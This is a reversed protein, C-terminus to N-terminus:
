KDKLKPEMTTVPAKPPVAEEVPAEEEPVEEVPAEEEPVEEVPAEEEPVEEKTGERPESCLRDGCVKNKTASGFQNTSTGKAKMAAGDAQQILDFSGAMTGTLLIFVAFVAPLISKNM